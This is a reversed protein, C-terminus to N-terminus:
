IILILKFYVVIFIVYAPIKLFATKDQKLSINHLKCSRVFGVLFRMRILVTVPLIINLNIKLFHSELAHVTDIHCLIPVPSPCKHNRYHVKPTGYFATFKKVLQFGILKELLVRSWPTLLYTFNTPRIQYM